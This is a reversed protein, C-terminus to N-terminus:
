DDRLLARAEQNAPDLHLIVDRMKRADTFRQQAILTRLIGLRPPVANRDYRLAENYQGLAKSYDGTRFLVDGVRKHLESNSPVLTLIKGYHHIAAPFDGRAEAAAGARQHYDLVSAHERVATQYHQLGEAKRGAAFLASGLNAEAIYNDGTVAIAHSFVSVSDRWTTTQRWALVAAILVAACTGVAILMRASRQSSQWWESIQEVCLIFIGTLSVYTYRDARAMEGIQVVGSVPLLVVVFWSFGVLLWPRRKAQWLCLAFIGILTVASFFGLPWSISTGPHPYFIALDTPVFTQRLYACYSIAANGLRVSVPYLENDGMAGQRQQDIVALLSVAVAIAFLPLKEVVLRLAARDLRPPKWRRLPWYDLLLLVIPLSVAMPKAMNACIFSVCVLAYRKWNPRAAHWAYAWITAFFFLGNLIDKRASLWAVPEVHLPHILFLAAVIAARTSSRLLTQLAGFLVLGAALHLLVNSLHHGGARLGHMQVDAVRSLLTLPECYEASADLRTLNATFAWVVGKASLGSALNPNEIIYRDDDFNLFDFRTTQAFVLLTLVALALCVALAALRHPLREAGM